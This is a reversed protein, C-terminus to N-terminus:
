NGDGRGPGINTQESLTETLRNQITDELQEEVASSIPDTIASAARSAISHITRRDKVSQTIGRAMGQRLEGRFPLDIEAWMDLFPTNVLPEDNSARESLKERDLTQSYDKEM